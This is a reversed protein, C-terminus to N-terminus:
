AKVLEFNVADIKLSKKAFHCGVSLIMVVKLLINGIFLRKFTKKLLCFPQMIMKIRDRRHSNNGALSIWKFLM